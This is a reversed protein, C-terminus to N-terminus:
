PWAQLPVSLSVLGTGRKAQGVEEWHDQPWLQRPPHPGPLALQLLLLLFSIARRVKGMKCVPFLSQSAPQSHFSGPSSLGVGWTSQRTWHGTPVTPSQQAGWMQCGPQSILTRPSHFLFQSPLFARAPALEKPSPNVPQAVGGLQEGVHSAQAVPLAPLGSLCQHNGSNGHSERSRQTWCGPRSQSRWPSRSPTPRAQSSAM